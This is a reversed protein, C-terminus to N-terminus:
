KRRKSIVPNAHHRGINEQRSCKGSSPEKEALRSGNMNTTQIEDSFM